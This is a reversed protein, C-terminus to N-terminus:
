SRLATVPQGIVQGPGCKTAVTPPGLRAPSRGRSLRVRPRHSKPDHKGDWYEPCTYGVASHLRDRNPWTQIWTVIIVWRAEAANGLLNQHSRRQRPSDWLQRCRGGAPVQRGDLLDHAVQVVPRGSKVLDLVKRRSEPPYRHPM